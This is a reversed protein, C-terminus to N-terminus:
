TCSQLKYPRSNTSILWFDLTVKSIVSHNVNWNTFRLWIRSSNKFLSETMYGSMVAFMPNCVCSLLFNELFLRRFVFAEGQISRLTTTVPLRKSKLSKTLLLKSVKINFEWNKWEVATCNACSACLVRRRVQEAQDMCWCTRFIWGRCRFYPIYFSISIKVIFIFLSYLLQLQIVPSKYCTFSLIGRYM